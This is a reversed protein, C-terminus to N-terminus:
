RPALCLTPYVIVALTIACVIRALPTGRSIVITALSGSSFTIIGIIITAQMVPQDQNQLRNEHGLCHCHPSLLPSVQPPPSSPARALLLFGPVTGIASTVAIVGGHNM